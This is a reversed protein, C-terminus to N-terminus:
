ILMIIMMPVLLGTIIDTNQNITAVSERMTCDLLPFTRIRNVRSLVFDKSVPSKRLIVLSLAFLIVTTSQVFM